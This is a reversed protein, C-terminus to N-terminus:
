STQIKIPLCHYVVLHGPLQLIIENSGPFFGPFGQLHLNVSTLESFLANSAIM